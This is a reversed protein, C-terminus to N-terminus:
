WFWIEQISHGLLPVFCLSTHWSPRFVSDGTLFPKCLRGWRPLSGRGEKGSECDPANVQCRLNSGRYFISKLNKNNPELDWVSTILAEGQHRQTLFWITFNSDRSFSWKASPVHLNLLKKSTQSHTTHLAKNQRRTGTPAWTSAWSLAALDALVSWTSFFWRNVLCIRRIESTQQKTVFKQSITEPPPLCMKIKSYPTISSQYPHAFFAQTSRCSRQQAQLLPGTPM